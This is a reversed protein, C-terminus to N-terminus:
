EDPTVRDEIRTRAYTMSDYMSEPVRLMYGSEYAAIAEDLRMVRMQEGEQRVNYIPTYSYGTIRTEGTDGYKTIELDLIVSYDTGATTGDGLFDGLSYAVFTGAESDYDMEHVFHPHTGIVADVGLSLLLNKIEKQSDSIQDRYESGWHVLVITLDPHETEELNQLLATIGATDVNKYTTAYDEYLVNVCGEYGVPLAMSGMGKTYAVIALKIGNVERITYGGSSQAEQATAWAGVPELGAARIASLTTGLGSMGNYISRSNAMQILDVGADRLAEMLSQPASVYQAGYPAGVLNGEFNVVTLDAGSLTPLVDMIASQFDLVATTDTINIDGAAAFHIVTDEQPETAATAASTGETGATEATGATEGTSEGTEQTTEGTPQAPDETTGATNETTQTTPVTTTAGPETPAPDTGQMAVVAILVACLALVVLAIVLRTITQKQEAKRQQRLKERQERRKNLEEEFAM